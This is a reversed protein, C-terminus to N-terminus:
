EPKHSDHCAKCNAADKLSAITADTPTTYATAGAAMILAEIKQDYDGQEGVPATTGRMTRVLEYLATYDSAEATGEKVKGFYSTEGKLGEKMVKEITEHNEHDKDAFSLGAVM